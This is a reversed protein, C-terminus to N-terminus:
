KPIFCGIEASSKILNALTVHDVSQASFRGTKLLDNRFILQLSFRIEDRNNEIEITIKILRTKSAM